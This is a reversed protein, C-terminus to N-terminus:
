NRVPLIYNSALTQPRFESGLGKGFKEEGLDRGQFGAVIVLYGESSIDGDEPYSRAVKSATM